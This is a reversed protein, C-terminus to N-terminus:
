PAEEARGFKGYNHMYQPTRLQYFYNIRGFHKSPAKTSLPM